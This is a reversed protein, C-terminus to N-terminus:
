QRKVTGPTKTVDPNSGTDKSGTNMSSTDIEPVMGEYLGVRKLTFIGGLIVLAAIFIHTNKKEAFFKSFNEFM